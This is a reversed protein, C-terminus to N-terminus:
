DPTVGTVPEAAADSTLTATWAPTVDDEKTVTLVGDTISWKNRLFRWGNVFAKAAEGTITSVDFMLLSRAINNREASAIAGDKIAGTAIQSSTIADTAIAGVAITAPLNVIQGSEGYTEATVVTDVIAVNTFEISIMKATTEIVELDLRWTKRGTVLYPLNTADGIDTGDKIIKVDGAAWTITGQLAQLVPDYFPIDITVSEARKLIFM